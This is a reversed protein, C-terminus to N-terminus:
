VEVMVYPIWLGRDAADRAWWWPRRQVPGGGCGSGSHDAEV